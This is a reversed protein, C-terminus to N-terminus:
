NIKNLVIEGIIDLEDSVNAVFPINPINLDFDSRKITSKISVIIRDVNKILSIDFVEKKTIGSIFLDGEISFNLTENEKIKSIIYNEKGEFIIYANEENTTKLIFRNIAGDRNSNDTHLTRADMKIQTFNLISNDIEDKISLYGFLQSTTGIATFPSGNLIEDIKFGIVSEKKSIEYIDGEKLNSSDIISNTDTNENVKVPRTFYFFAIIGLIALIILSFFIKKM